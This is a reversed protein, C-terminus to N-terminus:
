SFCREMHVMSGGNCSEKILSPDQLLLPHTPQPLTAVGGKAELVVEDGGEKFPLQCPFIKQNKNQM